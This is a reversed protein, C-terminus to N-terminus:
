SKVLNVIMIVGNQDNYKFNQVLITVNKVSEEYEERFKNLADRNPFWIRLHNGRPHLIKM